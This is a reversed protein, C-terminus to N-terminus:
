DPMVLERGARQYDEPSGIDIFYGEQVCGYLPLDAHHKEMYDKEFSFAQPWSGQLFGPVHLVYVGCSILGDKYYKKEKFDQIRGSADIDVVGYRDFNQMPKLALTCAANRQSHFSAMEKLDTAFFTDGNLVLAHPDSAQQAALQIAGGTGLPEKEIACTVPLDPYSTKLWDTIVEHKYGLSFIFREIGQQRYYQIIYALFPRGNIPAMCKPLDPVASRLRTGLGGALVIAEKIQM